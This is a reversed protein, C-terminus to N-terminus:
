ERRIGIQGCDVTQEALQLDRLLALRYSRDSRKTYRFAGRCSCATSYAFTIGGWVALSWSLLKVSLM